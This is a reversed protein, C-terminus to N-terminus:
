LTIQVLGVDTSCWIIKRGLYEDWGGWYVKKPKFKVELKDAVDTLIGNKLLYLESGTFAIFTDKDVCRFRMVRENDFLESCPSRKVDGNNMEFIGSHTAIYYTDEVVEVDYITQTQLVKNTHSNFWFGDDPNYLVFDFLNDTIVLNDNEIIHYGRPNYGSKGYPLRGMNRPAYEYSEVIEGTESHRNYNIDDISIIDGNQDWFIDQTGKKFSLKNLEFDSGVKMWYYDLALLNKERFWITNKKRNLDIYEINSFPMKENPLPFNTWSKGDFHLLGNGKIAILINNQGYDCFDNFSNKESNIPLDDTIDNLIGDSYIYLRNEHNLKGIERTALIWLKGESNLFGYRMYYSDDPFNVKEWKNTQRDLFYKGAWINSDADYKFSWNDLDEDPFHLAYEQANLKITQLFLFLLFAPSLMLLKFTRM